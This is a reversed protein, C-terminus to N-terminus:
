YLHLKVTLITKIEQGRSGGAKAEWLAPIVPTLWQVWGSIYEQSHLTIKSTESKEARACYPPHHKRPVLRSERGSRGVLTRPPNLLSGRSGKLPEWRPGLSGENGGRLAANVEPLIQCFEPPFPPLGGPASLHSARTDDKLKWARPPQALARVSGGVAALRVWGASPGAVEGRGAEGEGARVAVGAGSGPGGTGPRCRSRSRSCRQEERIREASGRQGRLREGAGPPPLLLRRARAADDLRLSPETPPPLPPLQEFDREVGWGGGQFRFHSCRRRWNGPPSECPAPGEGSLVPSAESRAALPILPPVSQSPLAGSSRQGIRRLPERRYDWCKPLGLRASGSNLLDLGDQSVGHFGAEELFFICFILRTHHCTGRTRAVRSALAPSDSPGPLHLNHHALIAGSCELRPQLSVKDVVHRDCLLHEIFTQHVFLQIFSNFNPRPQIHHSVSTIEASQSTSAPPGSSALLKLGAQGVHCFGTEVFVVFILWTHHCMGTIGAVKSASACSKSSGLLRLNCHALIVGSCKLRPSLSETIGSCQSALAPLDGSTLLEFGFQGIHHFGTEVLFVFINALHPPLRSTSAPSDSSGPLCLNCHAWIAGSCEPKPPFIKSLPESNNETAINADVFSPLDQSFTAIVEPEAAPLLHVKAEPGTIRASQSASTPPDGSTLLELGAQGDHHFGMGTIEASQSASVFPDGSTLLELGTHSVCYFKMEVTIGVVLSVSAPSHSSGPLCLNCHATIISSCKLWAPACRCLRPESCGGGGPNLRNKRRLKGLLQSSLRM